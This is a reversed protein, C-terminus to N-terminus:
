AVQVTDAHVQLHLHLVGGVPAHIWAVKKGPRAPDYTWAGNVADELLKSVGPPFFDGRGKDRISVDLARYTEHIGSEGEIKRRWISTVVMFQQDLLVEYRHDVWEVLEVLKPALLHWQHILEPMKFAIM